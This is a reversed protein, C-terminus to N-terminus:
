ALGITWIELWSDGPLGFDSGFCCGDAVLSGHELGSTSCSNSFDQEWARCSQRRLEALLGCSFRHSSQSSPSLCFGSPVM